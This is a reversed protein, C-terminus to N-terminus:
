FLSVFFDILIMRRRLHLYVNKGYRSFQRNFIFANMMMMPATTTPLIVEVVQVAAVAMVHDYDDDVNDDNIVRVANKVGYNKM